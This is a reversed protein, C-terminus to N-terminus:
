PLPLSPQRAFAQSIAKLSEDYRFQIHRHGGDFEQYTHPLNLATLRQSFLRAGYHLAYEDHNGCDLYILKMQRLADIYIKQALMSLPDHALWRQWVEPRLQGTYFEFPLDFGCPSDPNPSYCASMAAIQIIDFFDAPKPYMKPQFGALFNRLAAASDINHRAFANLSKPFDPKYCYEFYMDGSHCALASFSDPHRMAQILAGYGGSSKGAIARYGPEAQTRYHQDIYPLLENILHDEYRGTAPSNLYQSGGYRTFCDPMVLIMPWVEGTAILRDMREQITEDFASDNLMVTGRGTFGALLYVVPYRANGDDYGPPLYVPVRRLSPDGLPNHRLVNSTITEIIIKSSTPM